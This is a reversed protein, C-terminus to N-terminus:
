KRWTVLSEGLRRSWGSLPRSNRGRTLSSVKGSADDWPGSTSSQFDPSKPFAHRIRKVFVPILAYLKTHEHSSVPVAQYTGVRNPHNRLQPLTSIKPFIPREEICSRSTGRLFGRLQSRGSHGFPGQCHSGSTNIPFPFFYAM